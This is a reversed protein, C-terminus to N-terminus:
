KKAQSKTAPAAQAGGAPAAQAGGAPAATAGEVAKTTKEKKIKIKVTKIKPLGVPSNQPTWLNKEMLHKIKEIRKLVSRQKKLKISTSLSSHISM